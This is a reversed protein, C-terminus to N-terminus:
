VEKMIKSIFVYYVGDKEVSIVCDCGCLVLEISISGIGVFLDFVVIGEEFDMYNFLVNFLNEKVFDIILCVKFIRFVDFRRRKYIGSIVWM